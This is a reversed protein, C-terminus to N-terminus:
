GLVGRMCPRNLAFYLIPTRSHVHPSHASAARVLRLAFHLAFHSFRFLVSARQRTRKQDQLNRCHNHGEVRVEPREPNGTGMQVCVSLVM